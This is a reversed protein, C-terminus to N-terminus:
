ASTPKPTKPTGKSGGKPQDSPGRPPTTSPERNPKRTSEAKPRGSGPEGKTAKPQLASEPNGRASRTKPQIRPDPQPADIAKPPTHDKGLRDLPPAVISTRPLRLKGPKVPRAPADIPSVAAEAELDQREARAKRLEQGRQSIQQRTKQPLPQFRTSAEKSKALEEMSAAVNFSNDVDKGKQEGRDRLSNRDRLATWTRPPRSEEHDRHHAFDAALSRDWQEDSRHHWRQHAYFPDYGSRSSAFSFWPSFGSSAYTAGYYDGFYYHGYSPRLFLHRGFVAPNIVTVPSYSFGQRSYISSSFYVPAFLIGRRAVSYDYYGDIFVYGRPSWVYHAPIWVWNTQAAAWTGPRWAYRDQHWIWCGPLWIHDASPPDINPGAEVTEPPEPLYDIESAQADAWYGCTWQSGRKTSAWYGPVWKRGPPLARWIGSVWLFDDREDDWAWYGPIWDVHDGDPKQDPPLEEIAEPPANPVVVGPEPDFAITEAFAEHVPGRTLIEVGEEGGPPSRQFATAISLDLAASLALLIAALRWRAVLRDNM